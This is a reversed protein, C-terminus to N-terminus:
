MKKGRVEWKGRFTIWFSLVILKMDLWFTQRRIYLLDFRLKQPRAANRPAYVQALGTLGPRVRHRRDFDVAGDEYESKGKEKKSKGREGEEESRVGLEESRAGRGESRVGEEERGVGKGEIEMPRMARPGVFSMDGRFINWLQPLEDMATARLLRGIRTVRPDDYAAQVPGRGAEADPIMSRFKMADFIRGNRGVREQRYFVPGGDEIKVLAAFAAWLPASAILGSGSLLIDFLRKAMSPRPAAVATEKMMRDFSRTALSRDFRSEFAKRAREGMLRAREPDSHLERIAEALGDSDTESLVYGCHEEAVVRAGEGNSGGIYLIPRGAALAGYLKSPVMLGELGSRLTVLHVDASGLSESLGREDQFPLLRLNPLSAAELAGRNKGAGIFVFLVDEHASLRRAAELIPEFPHGLGMNGSYCVIFKKDLGHKEVFSNTGAPVPRIRNGDAWNHIVRTSATRAGMSALEEAMKEGIAAVGDARELSWRSLRNLLRTVFAGRSLIGLAVAVQPYVDQTWCAYRSGKMRRIVPGLAALLPPDSMFVVVDQRPLTMLKWFALPYFLLSNAVWGRVTGRDFRGARIRRVSIGERVESGAMREGPRDSRSDCAVVTVTNGSRSLDIALDTLMRSTGSPDPHFYRNVFVIKM